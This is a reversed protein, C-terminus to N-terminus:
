FCQGTKAEVLIPWLYDFANGECSKRCGTFAIAMKDQQERWMRVTCKNDRNHRLLVQPESAEQRFDALAFRCRGRGRISIDADFSGVAGEDVDLKLKTATGIQDVHSCRSGVTLPSTDHQQIGRKALARQAEASLSPRSSRPAPKATAPAPEDRSVEPEPPTACGGILALMALAALWRAM